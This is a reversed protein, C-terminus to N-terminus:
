NSELVYKLRFCLYTPDQWYDTRMNYTPYAVDRCVCFWLKSVRTILSKFGAPNLVHTLLRYAWEAAAHAAALDAAAAAKAGHARIKLLKIEEVIHRADAFVTATVIDAVHHSLYNAPHFRSYKSSPATADKSGAHPM